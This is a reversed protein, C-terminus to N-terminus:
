LLRVASGLSSPAAVSRMSGVGKGLMYVYLKTLGAENTKSFEEEKHTAVYWAEWKYLMICKTSDEALSAQIYMVASTADSSRDGM